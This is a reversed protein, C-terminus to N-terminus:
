PVAAAPPPVPLLPTTNPVLFTWPALAAAWPSTGAIHMWVQDDQQGMQVVATGDPVTLPITAVLAPRIQPAARAEIFPLGAELAVLAMRTDLGPMPAISGDPLPPLHRNIWEAPDTPAMVPGNTVWAQNDGPRRATYHGPSPEGAIIAALVAGSVGLVRVLTGGGPKAPDSLGLPYLAGEAPKVLKLALLSDLLAQAKGPAVPYAGERALGWVQGRRELWLVQGNHTIEIRDIAQQNAALVPLAPPPPPPPSAPTLQPLLVAGLAVCVAVGALALLVPRKMAQAYRPGSRDAM